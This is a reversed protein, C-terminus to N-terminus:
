WRTKTVGTGRSGSDGNAIAARGGAAASGVGGTNGSDAFM